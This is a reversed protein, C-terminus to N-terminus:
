LKLIELVRWISAHGAALRCCLHSRYRFPHENHRRMRKRSLRQGRKTQESTLANASASRRAPPVRGYVTQLPICEDMVWLLGGGCM